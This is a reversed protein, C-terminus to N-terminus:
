CENILKDIKNKLAPLAIAGFHIDTIEDEKVFFFAPVSKISYKELISKVGPDEHDCVELIVNPYSEMVKKVMPAIMKCVSCTPTTVEIIKYQNVM